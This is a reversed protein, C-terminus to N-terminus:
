SCSLRVALVEPLPGDGREVVAELRADRHLLATLLSELPLHHVGVRHRVEAGTFALMSFVLQVCDNPFPLERADARLVPMIRALRLQDASYDVGVVSYGRREAVERQLGTGCGADLALGFRCSHPGDAVTPGRGHLLVRPSRGPTTGSPMGTTGPRM